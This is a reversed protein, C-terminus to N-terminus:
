NNPNNAKFKKATEKIINETLYDHIKENDMQRLLEEFSLCLKEIM